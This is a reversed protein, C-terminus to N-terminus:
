VYRKNRASRFQREKFHLEGFRNEIDKYLTTADIHKVEVYGLNENDWLTRWLGEATGKTAANIEAEVAEVRNEKICKPTIHKFYEPVPTIDEPQVKEKKPEDAEVFARIIDNLDKGRADINYETSNDHYENINVIGGQIKLSM